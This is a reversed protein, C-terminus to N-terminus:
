SNKGILKNIEAQRKVSRTIFFSLGGGAIYLIGSTFIAFPIGSVSSVLGRVFSGAIGGADNITQSVGVIEGQKRRPLSNIFIHYSLPYIIYSAFCSLLILVLFIGLSKAFPVLMYCISTLFAAIILLRKKIIVKFWLSEFMRIVLAILEIFSFLFGVGFESIGFFSNLYVPIFYYFVNSDYQIVANMFTTIKVNRNAKAFTEFEDFYVGKVAEKVGDIVTGSKKTLHPILFTTAAAAAEFLIAAYFSYKNDISGLFGGLYPGVIASVMWVVSISSYNTGTEKLVNNMYSGLAVGYAANTIGEFILILIFSSFNNFITQLYLLIITSVSCLILVNRRPVFDSLTGFPSDFIIQAISSVTFLIGLQFLSIGLNSLYITRVPQIISMSLVSLFTPIIFLMRKDKFLIGFLSFKKVM